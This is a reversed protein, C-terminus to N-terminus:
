SHAPISIPYKKTTDDYKKSHYVFLDCDFDNFNYFSVIFKGVEIRTTYPQKDDAHTWSFYEKLFHNVIRVAKTSPKSKLTVNNDIALCCLYLFTDWIKQMTLLKNNEKLKIEEIDNEISSNIHLSDLYRAKKALDKIIPKLKKADKLDHFPKDFHEFVMILTDTYEIAPLINIFENESIDFYKMAMILDKERLNSRGLFSINGFSELSEQYKDEITEQEYKATYMMKVTTKLAKSIEDRGIFYNPNPFKRQYKHIIESTNM